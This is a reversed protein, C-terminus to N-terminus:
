GITCISIKSIELKRSNKIGIDKEIQKASFEIDCLKEGDNNNEWLERVLRDEITSLHLQNFKDRVEKKPGLSLVSKPLQVCELTVINNQAGNRLPREERDSMIASEFFRNRISKSDHRIVKRINIVITPLLENKVNNMLLDRYEKEKISCCYITENQVVLKTEM